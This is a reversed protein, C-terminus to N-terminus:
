KGNMNLVSNEAVCQLGEDVGGRRGMPHSPCPKAQGPAAQLVPNEPKELPTSHLPLHRSCRMKVHLHPFLLNAIQCHSSVLEANVEEKM